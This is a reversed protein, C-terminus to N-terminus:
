NEFAGLCALRGEWEQGEREMLTGQVRWKNALEQATSFYIFIYIEM